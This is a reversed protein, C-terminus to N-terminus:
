RSQVLVSEPAAQTTTSHERAQAAAIWQSLTIGQAVTPSHRRSPKPPRLKPVLPPGLVLVGLGLWTLPHSKHGGELIERLHFTLVSKELHVLSM